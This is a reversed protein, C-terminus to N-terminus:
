PKNLDFRVGHNAASSVHNKDCMLVAISIRSVSIAIQIDMWGQRGREVTTYCEDYM